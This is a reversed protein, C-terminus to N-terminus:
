ELDGPRSSRIGTGLVLDRIRTVDDDVARADKEHVEAEELLNQKRLREALLRSFTVREEMIRIATWLASETNRRQEAAFIEGTFSHGVHCRVKLPEGDGIQWIAGNCDPCTFTTREGIREVNELFEKTNMVQDAINAEIELSTTTPFDEQPLPPEAVLRMLLAGADAIPVTHDVTMYRLATMPMSPYEAEAPDQVVTIGGRKKITQLGVTGDDLYGTLVMGIVRSGHARAASRFLADISPRFRNEQPGRSVRVRDGKLLLHHDPAAVYVHGALIAEDDAPSRVPLDTIDGLLKPLYSKKDAALHQVVFIAARIDEPLEGLVASLAKLGGASAGIVVIDHGTM